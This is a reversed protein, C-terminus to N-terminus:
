CSRTSDRSNPEKALLNLQIIWITSLVKYEIQIHAFPWFILGCLGVPGATATEHRLRKGMRDYLLSGSLTRLDERASDSM